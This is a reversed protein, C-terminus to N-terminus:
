TITKLDLEKLTEKCERKLDKKITEERKIADTRRLLGERVLNALYFGDRTIGTRRFFDYNAFCHLKCDMAAEKDSPAEWTLERKLIEMHKFPNYKIYDYFYITQVKKNKFSVQLSPSLKRWGEPAKIDINDRILYYHYKLVHMLVGRKEHYYINKFIRSFNLLELPKKEGFEKRFRGTIWKANYAKTVDEFDTSGWLIFPIKRKTAENIAVTRLNNECNACIGAFTNMYRSIHLAERVAKRRFNTSKLVILDVSLKRRMNEVNKKGVDSAFGSDFFLALPKLGLERTVYFLIYSSDKGGSVPVICNYRNTRKTRLIELLKDHGKIIENNTFQKHDRCFSCIGNSYTINPFSDPIICRKCIKM